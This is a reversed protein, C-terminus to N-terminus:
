RINLIKRWLPKNKFIIEFHSFLKACEGIADLGIRQSLEINIINDIASFENHDIIYDTDFLVVGSEHEKTITGITIHNNFTLMNQMFILCGNITGIHEIKKYSFDKSTAHIFNDHNRLYMAINSSIIIFKENRQKDLRSLENM